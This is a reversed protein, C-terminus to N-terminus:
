TNFSVGNTTAIPEYGWKTLLNSLVQRIIPDDDALLVKM